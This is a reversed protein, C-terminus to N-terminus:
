KGGGSSAGIPAGETAADRGPITNEAQLNVLNNYVNKCHGNPDLGGAQKNCGPTLQFTDGVEIAHQLKLQITIFANDGTTSQYGFIESVVGKNKGTLWEVKGLSYWDDHAAGVGGPVGDAEFYYRSQSAVPIAEVTGTFLFGSSSANCPNEGTTSFLDARCDPGWKDGVEGTVFSALGDIDTNWQVGDFKVNRIWYTASRISAGLPALPVSVLWETVKADDYLGSKLDSVTISDSEITGRVNRSTPTLDESTRRASGEGGGAPTFEITDGPAEAFEIIEPWDTFRLVQADTREIKWLTALQFGCGISLRDALVNPVTISM